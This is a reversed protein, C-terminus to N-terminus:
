MLDFQSAPVSPKLYNPFYLVEAYLVAHQKIKITLYFVNFM